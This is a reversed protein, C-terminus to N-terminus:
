KGMMELAAPAGLGAALMGTVLAAARALGGRRKYFGKSYTELAARRLGSAAPVKGHKWAEKERKMVTTEYKPRWLVSLVKDATTLEDRGRRAWDKIHGLEHDLVRKNVRQPTFIMDREEGPFAYANDKYKEVEQQTARLYEKAETAEPTRARFEQSKKSATQLDKKTVIVDVPKELGPAPRKDGGVQGKLYTKASVKNKDFEATVKDGAQQSGRSRIYDAISLGGSGIAAGGMLAAGGLLVKAPLSIGLKELELVRRPDM